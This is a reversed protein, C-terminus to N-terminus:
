KSPKNLPQLNPNAKKIRPQIIELKKYKLKEVKCELEKHLVSVMTKSLNILGGELILEGGGGM